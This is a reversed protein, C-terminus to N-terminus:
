GAHWESTGGRGVSDSNGDGASGNGTMTGTVAAMSSV